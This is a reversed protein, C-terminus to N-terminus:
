IGLLKLVAYRDVEWCELVSKKKSCKIRHCKKGM